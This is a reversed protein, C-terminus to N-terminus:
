EQIDCSFFFYEFNGQDNLLWTESLMIVDFSHNISNLLLLLENINAKLSIINMCFISLSNVHFYTKNELSYTNVTQVHNIGNLEHLLYNLNDIM